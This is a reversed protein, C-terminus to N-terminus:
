GRVWKGDIKTCPPNHMLCQEGELTYAIADYFKVTGGLPEWRAVMDDIVPLLHTHGTDIARQKCIEPATRVEYFYTDWPGDQVFDRAARSYHTEDAIVVEHGSLFLSHIMIKSIARVMSEAESKYIQGHLALRIDDKKVIPARWEKSLQKVITSKGSRPLGVMAILVPKREGREGM